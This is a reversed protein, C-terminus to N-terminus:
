RTKGKVSFDAADRAFRGALIGVPKTKGSTGETARELMRSVLTVDVAEVDLARRCAENVREAGYRKVLGLLRYVQRMKTWPLPNDLLYKAMTGVATGHSAATRHLYDVDRMAYVSREAPLDAPDTSRGGPAQRVHVKILEGRHFIKVLSRDARAKVTQGIRNGPVSYLARAVQIHHDRHVTPDAFEPVDYRTEPVPLLRPLEEARFVELPRRQTTGHIRMGATNMCWETSHRRGDEIDRFHEGAWLSGRVYQVAREVRPKDTPTRVRAPDIEFGRSQAYEMFVDNIRPAVPDAHDVIASMNDPIVVHFVGGYFIWAEELGEIVAATTQLFSLWVFTLRSYCATVVLAWCVRKRGTEPEPLLGMRGFDIQVEGGPEGDAVPVTSGSRRGFGLEMAAYRHLTRYPVVIGRRALLTHVKVLPVGNKIGDEIAPREGAIVDWAAGHGAPRRPRVVECVQGVLEDTLQEESGGRVLRAQEGAEVYRRVTKRDIGTARAIGRVGRKRVWLRLVERIEIVSVERFAM